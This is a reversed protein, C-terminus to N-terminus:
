SVKAEIERALIKEKRQIPDDHLVWDIVQDDGIRTMMDGFREKKYGHERYLLIAKEILDMAQPISYIGPVPIGPKGVRGWKGGLLLKVGTKQPVVAHFYCTRICKGCNDCVDRDFVVKGQEKHPAHIKCGDVVICKKCDRCLEEQLLPMSQGVLGIDNLDPKVCNNPCGGVAIKFKHPLSVTQYGLFFRDHIQQAIEASNVQGFVCTAGKCAVVPRIKDGTGGTYLGAQALHQHIADIHEHKVGQMEVTMRSTLAVSGCGYRKACEAINILQESTLEGNGTIVRCNFEDESDRNYLYGMAKVRKIEQPTLKTM